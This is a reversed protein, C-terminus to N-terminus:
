EVRLLGTDLYLRARHKCVPDGFEGAQCTCSRAVGTIVELIYAMTSDTGSSAVWMGTSNIQRVQVREAIARQAAKQWREPTPQRLTRAQVQQAMTNRGTQRGFGLPAEM